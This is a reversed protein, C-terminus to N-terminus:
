ATLEFVQICVDPCVEYCNGCAICSATGEAPEVPYLGSANLTSDKKLVDVPCAKICLYCGKCMERDIVVKGKRAM